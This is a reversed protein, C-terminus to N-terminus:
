TPLARAGAVITEPISTDDFSHLAHREIHLVLM